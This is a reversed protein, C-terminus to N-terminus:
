TLLYEEPNFPEVRKIFAGVSSPWLTSNKGTRDLYWSTCGGSMWVTNTMKAQIESNFKAEAEPRPEITTIGREQMFRIANLIHKMQSEMMLLVSSHGLGTNPGMLLFLNPYGVLTTGLHSRPSGNWVESLTLGHKGRILRTFPIETVQFGTGFIIADVERAVGDSTVIGNPTIERISETVLEVNPQALAPYYDNAILIRKCGITYDPTLKKQLDSNSIARRMHMLAIKRFLSIFRPHRFALGTVERYFYINQRLLTQLFPFHTMLRHEPSTLSRDFSPLIWPATRQFLHMQKLEPQIKPVFQIASAGTGIVAVNQRALSYHHNWRASHFQKGQFRDLGPLKPISPESLAGTASILFRASFTGQSTTIHWTKESKVWSVEKVEHNFRIHPSIEFQAACNQLYERIEPQQSYLRNWRPNPAFSYSYLHSEVDCACGPYTNDRWTGGISSAKEFLTFDRIGQRKLHIAMGLGGFGTGIIAILM